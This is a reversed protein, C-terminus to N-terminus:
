RGGEKLVQEGCFPCFSGIVNLPKKGDRRREILETRIFLQDENLMNTVLRTNDKALKRNIRSFCRHM